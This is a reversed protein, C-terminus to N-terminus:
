EKESKRLKKLTRKCNTVTNYIAWVAILVPIIGALLDMVHPSFTKWWLFVVIGLAATVVASVDILRMSTCFSFIQQSSLSSKKFLEFDEKKYKVLKSSILYNEVTKLKDLVMSRIREENEKFYDNFKIRYENSNEVLLIQVSDGKIWLRAETPKLKVKFKRGDKQARMTVPKDAQTNNNTITATIIEGKNLTARGTKPLRNSVYGIWLIGGLLIIFLLSM